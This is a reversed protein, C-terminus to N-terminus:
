GDDDDDRDCVDGFGDGDLDAQNDNYIVSCNDRGDDIGDSDTDPDTPSTGTQIEVLDDLGDCDTDPTTPDTEGVNLRGDGNRDEEGDRLGDGDSDPNNPDLPRGACGSRFVPITAAERRRESDSDGDVDPFEDEATVVITAAPGNCRQCDFVEVSAVPGHVWTDFIVERDRGLGGRPVSQGGCERRIGGATERHHQYEPAVSNWCPTQSWAMLLNRRGESPATMGTCQPRWLILEM